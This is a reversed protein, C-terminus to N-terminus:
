ITTTISGDDGYVLETLDETTVYTDPFSQYRTIFFGLALQCGASGIVQPISTIFGTPVLEYEDTALGDHLIFFGRLLRVAM